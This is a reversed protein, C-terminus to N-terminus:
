LTSALLGKARQSTGSFLLIDMPTFAPSLEDPLDLIMPVLLGQVCPGDYQHKLSAIVL